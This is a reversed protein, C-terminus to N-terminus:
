RCRLTFLVLVVASLMITVTAMEVSLDGQEFRNFGCTHRRHHQAADDQLLRHLATDDRWPNCDVLTAPPIDDAADISAEALRTV